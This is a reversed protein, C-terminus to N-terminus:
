SRGRENPTRLSRQQRPQLSPEIGRAEEMQLLSTIKTLNM